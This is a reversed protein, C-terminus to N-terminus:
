SSTIHLVNIGSINVNDQGINIQLTGVQGAELHYYPDQQNSSLFNLREGEPLITGIKTWEIDHNSASSENRGLLLIHHQDDSPTLLLLHLALKSDTTSERIPSLRLKTSGLQVEIPHGSEHNPEIVSGAWPGDKLNLKAAAAAELQTKLGWFPFGNMEDQSPVTISIESKTM